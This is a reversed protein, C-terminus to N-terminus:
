RRRTAKGKPGQKAQRGVRKAGRRSSRLRRAWSHGALMSVSGRETVVPLTELEGAEALSASVKALTAAPWGLLRRIEDPGIAVVNDLHQLLIRRRAESTTLRRAQGDLAPLWRSVLDYVFAYDWAGAEAVGVPLVKLDKQLEAMARQFSAKASEGALRAEKRLRVTDLPGSHLLAEYVAKADASLRGDQYELLYENPDGYNESLAYFAPLFDLSVLTARGRLLRGYYWWRKDLADDKWNWSRGFAPHKYGAGLPIARGAIAHLLTPAEVGRTPWFLCFGVRKVFRRAAAATRVRRDPTRGYARNRHRLIVSYPISPEM